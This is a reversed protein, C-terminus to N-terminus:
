VNLSHMNHLFKLHDQLLPRYSYVKQRMAIADDSADNRLGTELGKLLGARLGTLAHM